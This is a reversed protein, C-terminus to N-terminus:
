FTYYFGINFSNKGVEGKVGGKKSKFFKLDLIHLIWVSFIGVMFLNRKKLSKETKQRFLIIEEVNTSNIYKEYWDNGKKNHIVAGTICSLFSGLLITGKVYKGSALQHIGPIFMTISVTKPKKKDAPSSDSPEEAATVVNLNVVLCLVLFFSM